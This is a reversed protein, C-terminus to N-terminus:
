YATKASESQSMVSSSIIEIYEVGVLSAVEEFM